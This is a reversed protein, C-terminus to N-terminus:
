DKFRKKVLVELIGNLYSVISINIDIQFPLEVVGVEKNPFTISLGKMGSRIDLDDKNMVPVEIIVRVMDGEDFIDHFLERTKNLRKNGLVGNMDVIPVRTNDVFYYSVRISDNNFSKVFDDMMKKFEDIM